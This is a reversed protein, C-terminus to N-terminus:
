PHAVAGDACDRTRKCGAALEHGIAAVMRSEETFLPWADLREPSEGLPGAVALMAEGKKSPHPRACHIVKKGNQFPADFVTEGLAAVSISVPRESPRLSSGASDSVPGAAAM